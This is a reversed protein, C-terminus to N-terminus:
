DGPKDKPKWGRPAPFPGNIMDTTWARGVWTNFDVGSKGSGRWHYNWQSSVYPRLRCNLMYSVQKLSVNMFAACEDTRPPKSRRDEVFKWLRFLPNSEQKRPDGFMGTM